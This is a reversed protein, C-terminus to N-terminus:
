PQIIELRDVVALGPDAPQTFQRATIQGDDFKRLHDDVDM